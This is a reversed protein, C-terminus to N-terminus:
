KLYITGVDGVYIYDDETEARKIHTLMETIKFDLDDALYVALAEPIAPQKPSGYEIKGHHSIIMHKVKLQIDGPTKLQDMKKSVEEYSLALHGVLMGERSTRIHTTVDLERIKGIDHLIAGTVMLDRNLSPHVKHLFECIKVVNLTHELLGGLWGHHKYMAAPHKIFKESFAPDKIFSYVLEKLHSNELSDSVKTLERYMEKTDKESEPIFDSKEYEKAELVKIKGAPPNINIAVRNNFITTEGVVYVVDDKKISAYLREVEEKKDPGWYRLMIEGSPDGVRLQFVYGKAYKSVPKKFKVVFKGDISEYPALNKVLM